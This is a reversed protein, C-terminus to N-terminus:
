SRGPQRRHDRAPARRSVDYPRGKGENHGGSVTRSITSPPYPGDLIPEDDPDSVGSGLAQLGSPPPPLASAFDQGPELAVMQRVSANIELVPVVFDHPKEGVHRPQRQEM